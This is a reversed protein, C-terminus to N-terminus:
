RGKNQFHKIYLEGAAKGHESLVQIYDNTKNHNIRSDKDTLKKEKKTKPTMLRSVVLDYYDSGSAKKVLLENRRQRHKPSILFAIIMYFFYGSWLVAMILIFTTITPNLEFSPWTFGIDSFTIQSLAVVIFLAIVPVWQGFTTTAYTQVRAREDIDTKLLQKTQRVGVISM